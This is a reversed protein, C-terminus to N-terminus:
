ARPPRAPLSWAEAAAATAGAVQKWDLHNPNHKITEERSERCAGLVGLHRTVSSLRENSGHYSIGEDYTIRAFFFDSPDVIWHYDLTQSEPAGAFQWVLARIEAPLKPFQTFSMTIDKKIILNTKHINPHYSSIQFAYKPLKYSISIQQEMASFLM